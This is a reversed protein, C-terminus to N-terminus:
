NKNIKSKEFQNHFDFFKQNLFVKEKYKHLKNVCTFELKYLPFWKWRVVSINNKGVFKLKRKINCFADSIIHMSLLKLYKFCVNNVLIWLTLVAIISKKCIYIWASIMFVILSILSKKKCARLCFLFYLFDFIM